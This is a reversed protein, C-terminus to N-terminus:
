NTSAVEPVQDTGSESLSEEVLRVLERGQIDWTFNETVREYANRGLRDRFEVDQAIRVLAASLSDADGPPVLLGTAGDEVAAPVGGVRTAVAPAGCAAAELIVMGFGETDSQSPLVVACASSYLQALEDDPM